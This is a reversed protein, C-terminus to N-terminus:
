MHEIKRECYSCYDGIRDVLDRKATQYPDYVPQPAPGKDVSRM